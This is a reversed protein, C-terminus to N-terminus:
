MLCTVEHFKCIVYKFVSNASKLPVTAVVAEVTQYSSQLEIKTPLSLLRGIGDSCRVPLTNALQSANGTLNFPSGM